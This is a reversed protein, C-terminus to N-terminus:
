SIPRSFFQGNTHDLTTRPISDSLAANLQRINNDFHQPPDPLPNLRAKFVDHLQSATVRVPRKKADTWERVYGWFSHASNCSILRSMNARQRECERDRGRHSERTPVDDEERDPDHPAGISKANVPAHEPLNTSVK